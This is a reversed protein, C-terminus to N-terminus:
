HLLRRVLRASGWGALVGLANAAMDFVDFTRYPTAGQAFELAIGLAIFGIAFQPRRAPHLLAFWFMLAAYAAFHGLKDGQALEVQPPSPTLSLWVIGAAWLWGAAILAARM